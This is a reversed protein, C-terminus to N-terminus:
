SAAESWSIELRVDQVPNIDIKIIGPEIMGTSVGRGNVSASRLKGPLSLWASGHTTRGYDLIARISGKTVEWTKIGSGQSIHLTDGLWQPESLKTRISFLRVGHPPIMQRLPQSSELAYYRANWFDLAHYQESACLGMSGLDLSIERKEDDWNKFARYPDM